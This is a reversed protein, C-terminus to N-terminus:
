ADAQHSIHKETSFSSESEIVPVVVSMTNEELNWSYKLGNKILHREYTKFYPSDFNFDIQLWNVFQLFIPQGKDNVCQILFHCLLM